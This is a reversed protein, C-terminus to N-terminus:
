NIWDASVSKVGLIQRKNGVGDLYAMGQLATQIEGCLPGEPGIRGNAAYRQDSSDIDVELVIKAKKRQQGLAANRLRDIGGSCFRRPNDRLYKEIITRTTTVGFSTSFAGSQILDELAQLREPHGTVTLHDFARKQVENM